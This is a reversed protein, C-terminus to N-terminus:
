CIASARREALRNTQLCNSNYRIAGTAMRRDQLRPNSGLGTSTPKTRISHCLSLHKKVYKPMGWDSDNLWHELRM